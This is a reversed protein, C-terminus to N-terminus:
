PKARKGRKKEPLADGGQSQSSSKQGLAASISEWAADMAQNPVGDEAAMERIISTMNDPTCCGRPPRSGFEATRPFVCLVRVRVLPFRSRIASILPHLQVVPNLFAGVSHDPKVYKWQGANQSCRPTGVVDPPSSVILLISAPLRMVQDIKTPGAKGGGIKVENLMPYSLEELEMRRKFLEANYQRTSVPKFKRPKVSLAFTIMLVIVVVTIVAITILDVISIGIWSALESLM